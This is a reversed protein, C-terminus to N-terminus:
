TMFPAQIINLIEIDVKLFVDLTQTVASTNINPVFHFGHFPFTNWLQENLLQQCTYSISNM